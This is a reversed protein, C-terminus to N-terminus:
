DITRRSKELSDAFVCVKWLEFLDVRSLENNSAESQIMFVKRYILHKSVPIGFKDEIHKITVFYMLDGTTFETFREQTNSSCYPQM